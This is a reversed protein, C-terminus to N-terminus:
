TDTLAILVKSVWRFLAPINKKLRFLLMRRFFYCFGDPIMKCFCYYIVAFTKCLPARYLIFHSLHALKQKELECAFRTWLVLTMKTSNTLFTDKANLESSARHLDATQKFCSRIRDPQTQWSWRSSIDECWVRAAYQCTNNLGVM